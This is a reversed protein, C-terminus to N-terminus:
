LLLQKLFLVCVFAEFVMWPLSLLHVMSLLCDVFLHLPLVVVSFRSLSSILLADRFYDVHGGNTQSVFNV